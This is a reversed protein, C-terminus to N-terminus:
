EAYMSIQQSHGRRDSAKVCVLRRHSVNISTFTCFSALLIDAIRNCDHQSRSFTQVVHVSDTRLKEFYLDRLQLRLVPMQVRSLLSHVNAVSHPALPFLLLSSRWRASRDLGALPIM